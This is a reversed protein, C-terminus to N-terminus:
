ERRLRRRQQGDDCRGRRPWWTVRRARLWWHEAHRRQAYRWLRGGNCDRRLCGLGSDDGSEAASFRQLQIGCNGDRTAWAVVPRPELLSITTQADYGRYTM